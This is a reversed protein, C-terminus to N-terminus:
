QQGGSRWPTNMWMEMTKESELRDAEDCLVLM